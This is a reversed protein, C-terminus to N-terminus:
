EAYYQYEYVKKKLLKGNEDYILKGIRKGAENYQYVSKEKLKCCRNKLSGCSNM